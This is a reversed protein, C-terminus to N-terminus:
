NVSDSMNTNAKRIINPQVVDSLRIMLFDVKAYANLVYKVM